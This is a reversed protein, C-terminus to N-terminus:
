KLFAKSQFLENYIKIEFEKLEKLKKNWRFFHRWEYILYFILGIQSFINLLHVHLPPPPLPPNSFIFFMFTWNLYWLFYFVCAINLIIFIKKIIEMNKIIEYFVLTLTINKKTPQNHYNKVKYMWSFLFIFNILAFASIILIIIIPTLVDLLSPFGPRSPPRPADPNVIFILNILQLIIAYIPYIVSIILYNKKKKIYNLGGKEMQSYIGDYKVEKDNKEIVM